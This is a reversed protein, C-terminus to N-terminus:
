YQAVLADRLEELRTRLSGDIVTDGMRTVVGAILSPDVGRTMVVRKGTMRELEGRLRQALPESLAVASVVSARVVGQHEDHLQRLIPAISTVLVVRNRQILLRLTNLITTSVGLRRGLATAVAVRKSEAILPNDLVARLPKHDAYAQAFLDMHHSITAVDGQEVGIDFLAQAYRQAIGGYSEYTM